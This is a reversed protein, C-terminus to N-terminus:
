RNMSFVTDIQHQHLFTLFQQQLAKRTQEQEKRDSLRVKYKNNDRLLQLHQKRQSRQTLASDSKIREIRRKNNGFLVSLVNVDMNLQAPGGMTYSGSLEFATLNSNLKLGPTIFQYDQMVFNTTADEFYLHNTREKRLFRLANQIPAVQILEMKRFSAKAYAITGAFSPSFTKDLQTYVMLNCDATGKISQSSLVDLNMSEAFAFVQQLNINNVQSRLRVPFNGGAGDLRMEGRASIKGNFAQLNLRTLRARNKNLNAELLLNTGKLYLYEVQRARVQLNLWYNKERLTNLNEQNRKTQAKASAANQPQNQESLSALDLMFEQLNLKNYQLNVSLYPRSIGATILNFGGNASAKGGGTTIFHMQTLKVQHNRQNVQVSLDKIKEGGPLNVNAVRLNVQTQTNEWPNKRYRGMYKDLQKKQVLQITPVALENDSVGPTAINQNLRTAAGTAMQLRAPQTPLINGTNGPEQYALLDDPLWETDLHEAYIDASAKIFGPENFLYSFYNQISAQMKFPRGGMTGSLNQLQLLKGTFVLRSNVQRCNVKLNFPRFGADQLQLSGNGLWDSSTNQLTDPINGSFSLNGSVLGGSIHTFPLNIFGAMDTLAIKGQGAVKFTPKTFDSVQLSLQINGEDTHASFHSINFQSTQLSHAQGNNMEGTIQVARINKKSDPLYFEGNKLKFAISNHPRQMPGSSGTLQLVFHLKSKTQFHNLFPQAQPPLLQRFLYVLPQYGAVKLNLNTGPGSSLKTHTGAITIKNNNVLAHTNYFTGTKKNLAYVYHVNATFAQNRFLSLKNNKIEKIKGNLDGELSLKQNRLRASLNAQAIDLAFSSNKYQNQTIIRGQRITVRPIEFPFKSGTTDANARPKFRLGVKQGNSDVRQYFLVEDLDVRNIKVRHLRLQGLPVAVSARKVWFVQVPNTGSTDLLSINKFSFTINPFHRWVSISTEFPQLVLDSQETFKQRFYDAANQQYVRSMVELGALGVGLLVLISILIRKFFKSFHM